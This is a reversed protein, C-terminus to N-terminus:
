FGVHRQRLRPAFLVTTESNESAMRYICPELILETLVIEPETKVVCRAESHGMAICPWFSMCTYLTGDIQAHFWVQAFAVGGCWDVAVVDNMLVARCKVHVSRSTTIRTSDSVNFVEAIAARMKRPAERPALMDARFLKHNELDALHQMTVEAMVSFEWSTTNHHDNMFRKTTRHKREMMFCSCLCRHSALMRPLHLVWHDKPAWLSTGYTSQHLGLHGAIAIGLAEPSVLGSNAITLMDLVECLAKCSAAEQALINFPDVESALYQKLVPALSMSESATGSLSGTSFCKKGSAYGAPWAWSQLFTHIQIPGKGFEGLRSVLHSVERQFLGSAVYCHMWDWQMTRPIDVALHEDALLGTPTWVFGLETQKKLLPAKSRSNEALDKLLLQIGRYSYKDHYDFRSVELSTAPVLYGGTNKELIKSGPKIVNKCLMCCKVGGSGKAETM